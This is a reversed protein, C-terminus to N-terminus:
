PFLSRIVQALLAQEEERQKIIRAAEGADDITPLRPLPAPKLVQRPNAPLATKVPATAARPAAAQPAAKPLPVPTPAPAPPAAKKQAVARERIIALEDYHRRVQDALDERTSSSNGRRRSGGRSENMSAGVVSTVIATGATPAAANPWSLLRYTWEYVGDPAATLAYGGNDTVQFTGAAPKSEAAWLLETTGDEPDVDNLLPSDFQGGVGIQAPILGYTGRTPVLGSPIGGVLIM